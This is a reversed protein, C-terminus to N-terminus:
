NEMLWRMAMLRFDKFDVMCDGNIDGAVITECPPEGFYSKSAEPTGGYAGMNIIGGNPFPEHGVPSMPDGADICPSTVDDIVWSQSNPDWRGAQSKLHYDGDIWIADSHSPDVVINPDDEHVWSGPDSFCPDTDINGPGPWGGNVNSHTITITSEDNNWVENGGDWLICNALRVNTPGSSWSHDYEVSDCAVANGNTAANGRFTCNVLSVSNSDTSLVAGGASVAYYGPAAGNASFVCNTLQLSSQDSHVAGGGKAHNGTFTCDRLTPSSDFNAIGGGYYAANRAFTCRVLLPSSAYNCIGGGYWTADNMEFMCDILISDSCYNYMGGGPGVIDVRNNRFVCNILLPTSFENAMGAGEDGDWAHNGEFSCDILTPCSHTNFMGVGRYGINDAFSCDILTPCSDTNFMGVGDSAWNTIFMCKEMKPSSGSNYMGAASVGENAYIECDTLNPSSDFNAIGAGSEALNCRLVCKTVLPAGGRNYVGAGWTAFGGQFACNTVVPDGDQNYMGGGYIADNHEFTCNIVTPDGDYNCMGGGRKDVYESGDANGHTIIFGDLVASRDAGSTMVVHYSNDVDSSEGIEGSLVAEYLEVDRVSPDPQGFGAYGGKISVGSILQFTAERAGTGGPHLSNEDPKYTGEAVRIEVPKTSSNADALADQLYNYANQWSSGDNAGPAHGDVFIVNALAGPAISLLM